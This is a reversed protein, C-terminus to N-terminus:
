LEEKVEGCNLMKEGFYPNRIEKSDSLWYAGKGDFAMPCFIAYLKMDKHLGFSKVTCYVIESVHSFYSRKEQIGEARKLDKLVGMYLTDHQRWAELGDGEMKEPKVNKVKDEMASAAADVGEVNDNVFANKMELYVKIVEILEKKTSESPQYPNELIIIDKHAFNSQLEEHEEKIEAANSGEKKPTQNISGKKTSTDNEAEHGNGCAAASLLIALSVLLILCNHIKM